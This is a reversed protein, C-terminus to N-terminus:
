PRNVALKEGTKPTGAALAGVYKSFNFTSLFIRGFVNSLDNVFRCGFVGM